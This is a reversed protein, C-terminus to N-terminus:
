GKFGKGAKLANIYGGARRSFEGEQSPTGARLPLEWAARSRKSVAKDILFNVVRALRSGRPIFTAGRGSPLQRNASQPSPADQGHGKAALTSSPAIQPCFLIPLM